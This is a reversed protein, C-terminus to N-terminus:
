GQPYVVIIIYDKPNQCIDDVMSDPMMVKFYRDGHSVQLVGYTSCDSWRNDAMMAAKWLRTTHWGTVEGKEMLPTAKRIADLVTKRITENWTVAEKILRVPDEAGLLVEVFLRAGRMELLPMDSDETREEYIENVAKFISDLVSVKDMTKLFEPFPMTGNYGAPHLDKANAIIRMISM